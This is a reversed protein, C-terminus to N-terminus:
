SGAPAAGDLRKGSPPIEPSIAIAGVVNLGFRREFYQLADHFVIYPKGAVPQLQGHSSPEGARRAKATLADANRKFTPRTRRTRAREAGARIREVM